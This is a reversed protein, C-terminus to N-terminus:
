LGRKGDAWYPKTRIRSRNFGWREVVLKRLAVISGAHGALYVFADIAPLSHEVWSALAQGRAGGNRVAPDLPLGALAPWSESGEDVEIAGAVTAAGPLARALASFLGLCTEDGLLVHTQANPDFGIGGGPGLVNVKAGAVLQSGWTSGPGHGHLFFFVEMRGREADFFAPTYHRFATDSVRLEIEQGPRYKVNRLADGEFGVRRLRPAIDEVAVVRAPRAFWREVRMSLFGPLEPM